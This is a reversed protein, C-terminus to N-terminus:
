VKGKAKRNALDKKKKKSHARGTGSIATMDGYKIYFPAYKAILRACREYATLNDHPSDVKITPRHKM